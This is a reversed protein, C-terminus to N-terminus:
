FPTGQVEENLILRYLYQYDQQLLAFLLNFKDKIKQLTEKVNPYQFVWDKDNIPFKAGSKTKILTSDLDFGLIQKNSNKVYYYYCTEENLFKM